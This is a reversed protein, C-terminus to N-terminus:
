RTLHVVENTHTYIIGNYDAGQLRQKVEILVYRIKISGSNKEFAAPKQDTRQQLSNTYM